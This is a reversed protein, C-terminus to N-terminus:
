SLPPLPPASWESMDVPDTVNAAPAAVTVSSTVGNIIGQNLPWFSRDQNKRLVSLIGNAFSRLRGDFDVVTDVM